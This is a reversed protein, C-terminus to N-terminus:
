VKLFELVSRPLVEKELNFRQCNVVSSRCMDKLSPFTECALELRFGSQAVTSSVMPYLSESMDISEFAVGLLVGNKYYSLQGTFGNFLCGITITQNNMDKSWAQCFNKPRGSHWAQGDHTLGYSNKDVGLLNLYGISNVKARQNGIGIQVSTGNLNVNNLVTVEWYTFAKAKLPKDGRVADTEFCSECEPHFVVTKKDGSLVVAEDNSGSWQWNVRHHASKIPIESSFKHRALKAIDISSQLLHKNLRLSAKKTHVAKAIPKNLLSSLLVSTKAFSPTSRSSSSTSYDQITM